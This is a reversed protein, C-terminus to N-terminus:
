LKNFEVSQKILFDLIDISESRYLNSLGEDNCFDIFLHSKHAPIKLQEQLYDEGYLDIINELFIIKAKEEHKFLANKDRKKNKIKKQVKQTLLSFIEIFNIGYGQIPSTLKEIDPPKRLDIEDIDLKMNKVTYLNKFDLRIKKDLFVENLENIKPEVYVYVIKNKIHYNSVVIIRNIYELSSFRISDGHKVALDFIGNGQTIAGKNSRLNHITIYPVGNNEYLVKGKLHITKEQSHINLTIFIILIFYNKLM